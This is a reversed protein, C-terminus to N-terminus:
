NVRKDIDISKEVTNHTIDNSDRNQPYLYRNGKLTLSSRDIDEEAVELMDFTDATYNESKLSM